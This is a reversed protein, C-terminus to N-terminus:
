NQSIFLIPCRPNERKRKEGKRTKNGAFSTTDATINERNGSMSKIKFILCLIYVWLKAKAKARKKVNKMRSPSIFIDKKMKRPIIECISASRSV